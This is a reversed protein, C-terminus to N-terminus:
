YYRDTCNAAAFAEEMERQQLEILEDMDMSARRDV